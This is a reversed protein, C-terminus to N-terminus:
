CNLSAVSLYYLLNSMKIPELFGINFDSQPIRFPKETIVEGLKFANPHFRSFLHPVFHASVCFNLPFRGLLDALHDFTNKETKLHTKKRDGICRPRESM